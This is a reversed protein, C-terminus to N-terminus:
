QKVLGVLLLGGMFRKQATGGKGEGWVTVGKCFVCLDSKGCQGEYMVKRAVVMGKSNGNRVVM